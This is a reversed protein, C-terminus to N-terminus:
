FPEGSNMQELKSQFIGAITTARLRAEAAVPGEYFEDIVGEFLQVWRTFHDKGIPLDMHPPFPRGHYTREGFLLSQWFTYMKELHLQWRDGIKDNFIPGLIEDARIRDYFSNVFFRIDQLDTIDNKM